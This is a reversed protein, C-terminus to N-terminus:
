EPQNVNALAEFVAMLLTTITFPKQLFRYGKSDFNGWRERPNMYGSYLLVPLAPKKQRIVDALEVGNQGPMVIDSFLLDFKEPESNFLALAEEASEAESIQYEASQLLQVVMRRIEPDDEVLLIHKPESKPAPQAESACAKTSFVPLYIKFTTGRGEESDVAIWGNHQKVIGYLVSLGLGTGKGIGKTTFFPEFLHDKVQQSMGYGTDTVALCVFDGAVAGPMASAADPSFQINETKFTLQGGNPMADRANVSLNMIIQSLQGADASVLPLDQALDLVPIINGELMMKIMGQTDEIFANLSVSKKELPQKRSFTLLHRTLDAACSASKKIEAVDRHEQTGENLRGLLIESYGLIAQLINNFDHAVGGALQGIAEMKQSQRFQEERKLEETMNRKVAVYNVTKGFGDKVPSIVAEETYLTGDKKKNVIRGSWTEGRLLTNWMQQYFTNDHQGSQLIRPNKGMAEEGTYGNVMEFAPNVYQITGEADTIMITEAVQNIATMFQEKEADAQKRELEGAARVAVMKLAAEALARNALPKQSIVAILGIPKGTHDFLTVGVYSEARLDKLVPDNPFLQCVQDPFCCVQQGVVDGCPTDKLAYTVNDEFKGDNWVAETRAILGDGELRDICVFDMSLNEALFRALAYFFPEDSIGGSTKALFTQIQEIQKRDTINQAAGRLGVTAGKGDLVREGHVWMWGHSGDPRVTKLELEYPIGLETTESLAKTLREWSEPTFIKCHESYPPPPLSPDFGYMRYLEESWIVENTSINLHWSGVHAIRQSEELDENRERLAEQVQMRKSINTIIIRCAPMGDDDQAAIADLGSWFMEGDSKLMRLEVRQPLGTEVLQKRRLYYVDQDERLIFQSFPRKALMNRGVGLLTAAALNAELILGKESITVYGVPALDYLDFYRARAADLQTHIARLNNNQMELEIQHVQLEHVTHKIEEPSMAKLAEPAMAAKREAARRMEQFEELLDESHTM